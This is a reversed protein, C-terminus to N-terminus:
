AAVEAVARKKALAHQAVLIDWQEPEIRRCGDFSPVFSLAPEDVTYGRDLDAKVEAPVDPIWMGYPGDKGLYLFGCEFFPNGIGRFGTGGDKIGYSVCTPVAFAEAIVTSPDVFGQQAAFRRAWETGKKPRSGNKGAKGFDSHVKDKFMVAIVTGDRNSVFIEDVGLEKAIARCEEHVRLKEAIYNTVLELAKGGEIM